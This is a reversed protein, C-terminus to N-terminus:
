AALGENESGDPMLRGAVTGDALILASTPTFNDNLPDEYLASDAAGSQTKSNGDAGNAYASRLSGSNVPSQFSVSTFTLGGAGWFFNSSAISASSSLQYTGAGGATGTLQAVITTGGTLSARSIRDGVNFTVGTPVTSVTLTTGSLSGTFFQAFSIDPWSSHDFGCYADATYSTGTYTGAGVVTEYQRWVHSDDAQNYGPEATAGAAASTDRYSCHHIYIDRRITSSNTASMYGTSVCGPISVYAVIANEYTAGSWAFGNAHVDIVTQFVRSGSLTTRPIPQSNGAVAATTLYAAVRDTAPSAVTAVLGSVGLGNIWDILEAVTTPTGSWNLYKTNLVGDVWLNFPGPSGNNSDKQYEIVSGGSYSLTFADHRVAQGTTVGGLNTLTVGVAAGVLGEVNSGSCMDVTCHRILRAGVLGWASLDHANVETYFVNRAALSLGNFYFPPAQPERGLYLATAGSSSGGNAESPAGCTFECGDLWLRGNGNGALNPIWLANDIGYGLKAVDLVVGSGRFCMGSWKPRTDIAAGNGIYATVGPAAAFVAWAGAENFDSGPTTVPYDGSTTFTFKPRATTNAVRWTRAENITAFDGGSGITLEHTFEDNAAYFYLEPDNTTTGAGLVRRQMTVDVPDAIVVLRAKAEASSIAMWAAHDVQVWYAKLSRTVGNADQYTRTTKTPVNVSVGELIFTVGNILGGKCGADAAIWGDDTFVTWPVSLLRLAPKATERTPDNPLSEYAGGFGSGPTGNYQASPALKTTPAAPPTYGGRVRLKFGGM